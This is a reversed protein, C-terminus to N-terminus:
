INELRNQSKQRLRKLYTVSCTISIISLTISLLAALLTMEGFINGIDLQFVLIMSMMGAFLLINETNKSNSKEM